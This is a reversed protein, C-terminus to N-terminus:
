LEYAEMTGHVGTIGHLVITSPSKMQFTYIFLRV